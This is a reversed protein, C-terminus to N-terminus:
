LAQDFRALVVKQAKECALSLPQGAALFAAIASALTCGTGRRTGARREVSFTGECGAASFLRDEARDGSGHGGKILVHRGGHGLLIQAQEQIDAESQAVPRGSLLAAEQLNPTVLDTLPLLSNKLAVVGDQTLLHRGSSAAIVPDMIVPISSAHRLVSAVAGVIEADALMGIKIAGVPGSDLAAELQAAVLPAPLVELATVGQHTQATVATIVPRAQGGLGTITELDRSIGAGGSSDSGAIVIVAPTPTVGGGRERGNRRDPGAM